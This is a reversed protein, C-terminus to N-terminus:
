RVQSLITVPSLEREFLGVILNCSLALGIVVVFLRLSSYPLTLSQGPATRFWHLPLEIALALCMLCAATIGAAFIGASVCASFTMLIRLPSSESLSSLLVVFYDIFKGSSLLLTLSFLMAWQPLSVHASRNGGLHNNLLGGACFASLPVLWLFGLLVVWSGLDLEIQAAQAAMIVAVSLGVLGALGGATLASLLLVGAM